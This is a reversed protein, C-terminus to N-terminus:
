NSNTYKNQKTISRVGVKLKLIILLYKINFRLFNYEFIFTKM